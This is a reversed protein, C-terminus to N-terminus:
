TQVRFHYLVSRLAGSVLAAAAASTAAMLIRKRLRRRDAQTQIVPVEGLVPLGSAATVDEPTIISCALSSRGVAIMLSLLLGGLSGALNIFLRNPKSPRKRRHARELIEFKEGKQRFELQTATQASLQQEPPQKYHAKSIEYDRELETIEQERVPIADLKARYTGVV